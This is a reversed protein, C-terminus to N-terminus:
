GRPFVKVYKRYERHADRAMDWRKRSPLQELSGHWHHVVRIKPEYWVREGADQLQKSLFFEESMMFTPAWLEKFQRFYRPGLVYCSGHGQYIPQAVRWQEEDTRESVRPFMKAVKYILRGLHYNSYYLDYFIERVTSIGAIVHPNQHEGDLTVVDPSIVSHAELRTANRELLDCFDAPFELDNNGVVVWEIDPRKARLAQLGLNLGRFYGTNDPSEIVQVSPYQQALPRLKAREPEVSANDVAVVEIDHGDNRMLSDVAALTFHSNNYNTCVYAIKM